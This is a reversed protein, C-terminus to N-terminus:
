ALSSWAVISSPYRVEVSREAALRDTLEYAPANWPSEYGELRAAGVGEGRAPM